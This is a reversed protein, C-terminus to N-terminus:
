IRDYPNQNENSCEDSNSVFDKQRDHVGFAMSVIANISAVIQDSCLCNWISSDGM